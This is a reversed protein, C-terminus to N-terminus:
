IQKEPITIIFESFEGEESKVELKGKHIKNIIDFSMSLGLGTGKGTPKTTFFPNFIKEMVHPPMGTGNDRIRIEIKDQIKRTSIIVEPKYGAPNKKAKEDVAYCSNNTINLIVRSLDQTIISVKGIAPDFQTTLATNFTKDKAKMGHYALSVYEAVVSNLEVEEFEGKKGRSHQLMGKVISEVRKGHDNIKQVNGKIMGIVEEADAYSDTPIQDKLSEIIENLEDALGVSLSAFNNVFNLPNQIEHAIGATLQGLSALKESQVLQEQTDKLNHLTFQLDDLIRTRIIASIIHEKANKILSIDRAEFARERSFNEFILFAEVKNEIRIVLLMMSKPKNFRQLAEVMEFSAFESKIFIDEFVEEANKLYRNEAEALSLTVHEVDSLDYGVGAKYRYNQISKDFVLAASKEASRIIRMKELLSQLLNDFNIEANISKIAANIKELEDNKDALEQSQQEIEEKQQVVEATRSVIREELIRKEKLLNRNRLIVILYVISAAFLIYGLIAWVTLYWPSLLQFEVEKADTTEEFINKARVRFKYNGGPINTYEKYSQTTWDNWSEEFGELFFQYYMEDKAAHYPASFDFRLINDQYSLVMEKESLDSHGAFLVSDNNITIARLLLSFPRKNKNAISPNYRVLGDSGGFWTIGNKEPFVTWIVKSAIPLFDSSQKKFGNADKLILHVSTEDGNTVWVNESNDPIMLAYWESSLSDNTGVMKFPEFLQQQTNFVFLGKQSSIHLKDGIPHITLGKTEPLGDEQGFFRINNEMPLYRFVGKSLSVGWVAGEVDTQLDNVEDEVGEIKKYDWSSNLKKLQFLGEAEGVYALTKDKESRAITLAFRDRVLNTNLNNVVFLGQSTAAILEGGVVELSWCAAIIDKLPVFGFVADDYFFLGQYTAVYLKNNFRIIDNVAGELGSKEDYFSFASPIEIVSIGNNLAVFLTNENSACMSRVFSNQLSAEKDIIQLVDGAHNIIVVGKRSTGLAITGDSLNLGSTVPNKLLLEQVPTEFTQYIGNNLLLLGQTSTAILIKNESFPLMATIVAADSLQSGQGATKLTSNIFSMLGKDKLQLYLVNNVHFAGLISNPSEWQTLQSDKLSFILREAIFYITEGSIVIQIIEQFVPSNSTSDLLSVFKLTGKTDAELYGIEGRAGVYVKDHKDVALASVKSGKETPILRWNEGDYQMVGAFNGVYLLGSQDTAVAFNQAHAHYDVTSYNKVFPFGTENKSQGKVNFSLSILLIAIILKNM